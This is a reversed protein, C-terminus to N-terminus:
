ASSVTLARAAPFPKGVGSPYMAAIAAAVEGGRQLALRYADDAEVVRGMALCLDGIRQHADARSDDLRRAAYATGLALDRLGAAEAIAALDLLADPDTGHREYAQMYLAQAETPHREAFAVALPAFDARM